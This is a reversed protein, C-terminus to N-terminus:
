MSRYTTKDEGYGPFDTPARPVTEAELLVLSVIQRVRIRFTDSDYYQQGLLVVTDKLTWGETGSDIQIDLPRETEQARATARLDDM